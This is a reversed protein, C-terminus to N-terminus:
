DQGCLLDVTRRRQLHKGSPLTALNGMFNLPLRAHFSPPLLPWKKPLAPWPHCAPLAGIGYRAEQSWKTRQGPAADLRGLVCYAGVTALETAATATLSRPRSGAASVALGNVSALPGAAKSTGRGAPRGITTGGLSRRAFSGEGRGQSDGLEDDTKRGM